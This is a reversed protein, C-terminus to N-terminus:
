RKILAAVAAKSGEGLLTGLISEWWDPQSDKQFQLNEKFMQYRQAFEKEFQSNSRDSQFTSFATQGEQSNLNLLQALANQQYGLEQTSLNDSVQTLANQENVYADNILNAGTGRFGSSALNEKITRVNKDTSGGIRRAANGYLKDFIPNNGEVNKKLLSSLFDYNSGLFDKYNTPSPGALSNEQIWRTGDKTTAYNYAM